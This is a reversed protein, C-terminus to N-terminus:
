AVFDARLPELATGVVARKALTNKVVRYTSGTERIRARLETLEVVNLGTFALTFANNCGAFHGALEEVTSEKVSREM